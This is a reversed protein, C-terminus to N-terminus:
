YVYKSIDFDYRFSLRKKAVIRELRTAADRGVGYRGRPMAGAAHRSRRSIGAIAGSFPPLSAIRCREGTENIQV